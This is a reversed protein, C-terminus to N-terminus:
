DGHAVVADAHRGIQHFGYELQERLHLARGIAPLAPQPDTEREHLSQDFTVTPAHTRVARTDTRATDKADRQRPQQRGFPSPRWFGDMIAALTPLKSGVTTAQDGVACHSAM